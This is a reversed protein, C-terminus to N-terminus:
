FHIVLAKGSKSEKFGFHELLVQINASRVFVHCEDMGKSSVDKRLSEAIALISKTRTIKPINKDLILIAESTLRVFGGGIIRESNDTITKKSLFLLNTLDPFPFDQTHIKKLSEM